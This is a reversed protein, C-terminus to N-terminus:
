TPLFCPANKALNTNNPGTKNRSITDVAHTTDSTHTNHTVEDDGLLWECPEVLLLLVDISTHFPRSRAHFLIMLKNTVGSRHFPDVDVDVVPEEGISRCRM